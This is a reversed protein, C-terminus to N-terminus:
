LKAVKVLPCATLNRRTKYMDFVPFLVSFQIGAEPKNVQEAFMYLCLWFIIEM